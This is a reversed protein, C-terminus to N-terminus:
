HTVKGFEEYTTFPELPVGDKMTAYDSIPGFDIGFRDERVNGWNIPSDVEVPGVVSVAQDGFKTYSAKEGSAVGVIQYSNDFVLYVSSKPM